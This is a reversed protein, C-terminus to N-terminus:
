RRPLRVRVAPIALEEPAIATTTAPDEPLDRPSDTVQQRLASIPHEVLEGADTSKRVPQLVHPLAQQTLRSVPDLAPYRVCDPQATASARRAAPPGPRNLPCHRKGPLHSQLDRGRGAAVVDRVRPVVFAPCGVNGASWCLHRREVPRRESSVARMQQLEEIVWDARDLVAM